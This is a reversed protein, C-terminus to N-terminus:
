RGKFDAPSWRSCHLSSFTQLPYGPPHSPNYFLVHSLPYSCCEILKYQIESRHSCSSLYLGSSSYLLGACERMDSPWSSRPWQSFQQAARNSLQLAKFWCNWDNIESGIPGSRENFISCKHSRTCRLSAIADSGSTWMHHINSSNVLLSGYYKVILTLKKKWVACNHLYFMIKKSSSLWLM